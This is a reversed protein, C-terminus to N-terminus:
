DLMNLSQFMHVREQGATGVHDEDTVINATLAGKRLARTGRFILRHIWVFPLLVPCKDVCPYRASLTARSPFLAKMYLGMNWRLMYLWYQTKSKSKMLLQRNYEKWGEERAAKDAYGMWGGKELDDLIVQVQEPPEACIGPFDAADFGGHQIMAWLICNFLKGYHLSNVTDWVRGIDLQDAYKKFYLVVDLMMQLTLGSLIFHKIMHLILFIFHDTCGLTYYSGDQTEVLRHPERVYESGDMKGFWVDEVIEDYLIVHLEVYGWAPHHCVAHHGNKWRPEVTFGQQKMFKCARAEDRPSILIDADSSTRSEPLAYCDSIAYGKLLVAHIGAAELKELLQLIARRHMANSLVLTRADKVLPDRIAAPCSLQPDNKLAYALYCDVKQQRAVKLVRQWHIAGCDVDTAHGSVGIAALQLMQEFEHTM